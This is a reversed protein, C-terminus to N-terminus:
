SELFEAIGKRTIRWQRHNEMTLNVTILICYLSHYMYM